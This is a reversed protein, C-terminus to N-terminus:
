EAPPFFFESGKRAVSRVRRRPHRRRQAEGADDEEVHHRLQGRRSETACPHTKPPCVRYMRAWELPSATPPGFVGGFRSAVVLLDLNLVASKIVLM